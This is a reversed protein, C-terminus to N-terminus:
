NNRIKSDVWVKKWKYLCYIRWFLYADQTNYSKTDSMYRNFREILKDADLFDFHETLIKKNTLVSAMEDKLITKFWLLEPSIFGTKDKREVIEEPCYHRAFDRVIRKNIGNKIKFDDPLSYGLEVIRYDLFPLRAELSFAMSNRDEYRLYEPLSKFRLNSFLDQLFINKTVTKCRLKKFRIKSFSKKRALKSLDIRHHWFFANVSKVVISFLSLKRYHNVSKIENLASTIKLLRLKEAIYSYYNDTYGGFVEDSGQGNLLVVADSKTKIHKYLYWQSFVSLSRFPFEQYYLIDDIDDSFKKTDPYVYGPVFGTKEITKEIYNKESFEKEKFVASFTQFDKIKKDYRKHIDCVIATSDLGGSLLSGVAVDSRMRLDVASSFLDELMKTTEHYNLKKNIKPVYTWYEKHRLEKIKFVAYAGPELQYIDNFMTSPLHDLSCNLIYDIALDKNIEIKEIFQLLFKVESSFFLNGDELYYYLPKVGFRDRTLVLEEKESDYIAAAWMGNFKNFCKEGWEIYSYLFVETDSNSEFTYGLEVLEKKLEIYNYIEGNLVVYYRSKNDTMPQHGKPTLDIISLRRHGIVFNSEGFSEIHDCRSFYDITDDGKAFKIKSNDNVIFGEDDPGRHKLLLHAKYYKKLDIKKNGFYGTIGCM